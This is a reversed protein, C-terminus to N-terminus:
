HDVINNQYKQFKFQLDYTKNYLGFYIFLLGVEKYGQLNMPMILNLKINIYSKM